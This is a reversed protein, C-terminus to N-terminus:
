ESGKEPKRRRVGDGKRGEAPENLPTNMSTEVSMKSTGIENQARMMGTCSAVLPEFVDALLKWRSRRGM